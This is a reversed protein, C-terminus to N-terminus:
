ATDRSIPQLHRVLGRALVTAIVLLMLSMAAAYGFDFFRFATRYIYLSITETAFGPGGQTLIFVQDFVRILDMGRLMAALVLVPRLLPLEIDFFVRWKSAGDVRAAELAEQPLGQLAASVLLFVFPTWEWVDVAIVSLLAGGEGNTWTLGSPNGGLARITGNLLGFQPNYILRWIVAAVVPPLLMPLMLATRLFGRGRRVSDVLIALLLGLTLELSLAVILFTATHLFAEGLMRDGAMRTFNRITWEGSISHFGSFVLFFLPYLSM